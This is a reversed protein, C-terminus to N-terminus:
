NFVCLAGNASRPLFRVRRVRVMLLRHLRVFITVFAARRHSAARGSRVHLKRRPDSTLSAHTPVRRTRSFQSRVPPANNVPESTKYEVMSYYMFRALRGSDATIFLRRSNNLSARTPARQTLANMLPMSANDRLRRAMSSHRTKHATGSEM